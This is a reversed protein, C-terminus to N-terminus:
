RLVIPLMELRHLQAIRLVARLDPPLDAMGLPNNKAFDKLIAARLLNRLSPKAANIALPADPKLHLAARVALLATHYGGIEDVLGRKKAQAGTWVRGQAVADVAAATLHRGSAVWGVFQQYDAALMTQISALQAPTWSKVSSDFDANAGRSAGAITVGVKRLLPAFSLKGGLVGISGTLTARDAVLVAGHSSIWYGGSADLGGMSVILPKHAAAAAAVEAGVMASGTVTGGPTDLRLLIAKISKDKIAHAIEGALRRPAISGPQVDASPAQIDGRAIILAIHTADKPPTPADDVYTALKVTEGPFDGVRADLPLVADVLHDRKAQEAGFPAQDILAEVSAPTQNMREAIPAIASAYLSGALSDLMELNQATPESRTFLQPYTKYAGVHEFQANVGVNQLLTAAFPSELALGTVGFDGAASLEIRTAATAIDYAGLGSAGDFSMARAIIPKGSATHFRALADRIEEATTLSCCGGGLEIDIGTVRKDAAARDIARITQLLTPRSPAGFNLWAPSPEADKPAQTLDIRLAFHDPIPTPGPVPLRRIAIVMAIIALLTLVGLVLIIGRITRWLGRIVRLPWPRSSASDAM